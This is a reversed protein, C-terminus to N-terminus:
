VADGEDNCEEVTAARSKGKSTTTSQEGHSERLVRENESRRREAATSATNHAEAVTSPLSPLKQPMPTDPKTPGQENSGGGTANM